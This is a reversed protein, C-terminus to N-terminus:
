NKVGKRVKYSKILEEIMVGLVVIVSVQILSIPIYMLTFGIDRYVLYSIPIMVLTTILIGKVMKKIDQKKM